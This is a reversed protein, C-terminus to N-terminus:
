ALALFAVVLIEGTLGFFEQGIRRFAGPGQDNGQDVRMVHEAERSGELFAAVRSALPRVEAVDLEGGGGVFGQLVLGPGVGEQLHALESEESRDLAFLSELVAAEIRM